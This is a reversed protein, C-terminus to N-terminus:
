KSGKKGRNGKEEEEEWWKKLGCCSLRCCSVKVEGGWDKWFGWLKKWEKVGLSVGLGCKGWM